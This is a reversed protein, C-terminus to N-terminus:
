PLRSERVSVDPAALEGRTPLPAAKLCREALGLLPPVCVVRSNRAWRLRRVIDEYLRDTRRLADM